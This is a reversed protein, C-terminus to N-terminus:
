GRRSDASADDTGCLSFRRQALAITTMSTGTIELSNWTRLHKQATSPANLDLFHSVAFHAAPAPLESGSKVFIPLNAGYSLTWHQKVDVSVMFVILSPSGLVAVEVKVCSRRESLSENWLQKVDVSVMCVILSPSGLVAAEVKVCSKLETDIASPIKSLRLTPLFLIAKSAKGLAM